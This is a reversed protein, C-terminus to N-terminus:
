LRHTGQQALSGFGGDERQEQAQQQPEPEDM